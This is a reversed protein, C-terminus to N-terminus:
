FNLKHHDKSKPTKKRMIREIEEFSIPEYNHCDVGVDISLATPDDPLSGHSHGYLMYSGYHMKNWVRFSYHSMVIFQKNHYIEKYPVVEIWGDELKMNKDHNGLILTKTGNLQYLFRSPNRDMAFDGLVYVHDQSQVKNNWNNILSANMHNVDTYPRKSYKIINTHGFHMDSTFYITM